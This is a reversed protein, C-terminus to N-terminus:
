FVLLIQWIKLPNRLIFFNNNVDINREKLYNKFINALGFQRNDFNALHLDGDVLGYKFTRGIFNKYEDGIFFYGFDDIIEDYKAKVGDEKNNDVINKKQDKLIKYQDKAIDAQKKM